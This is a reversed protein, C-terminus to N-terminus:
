VKETVMVTISGSATVATIAGSYGGDEYTGRSPLYVSYLATSSASDLTIFVPVSGSNQIIFSKRALNSNLLTTSSTTVSVATVIANTAKQLYVPWANANSNPTGQDVTGIEISGSTLSVTWSGSQTAAITGDVTWPTTGQLATVTGTIPVVAGALTVKLSEDVDVRLPHTKDFVDLATSYTDTQPPTAVM